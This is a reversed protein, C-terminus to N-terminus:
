QEAAMAAELDFCEEAVEMPVAGKEYYINIYPYNMDKKQERVRGCLAWDSSTVNLIHTEVPVFVDTYQMKTLVHQPMGAEELLRM